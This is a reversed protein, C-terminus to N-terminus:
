DLLSNYLVNQGRLSTNTPRDLLRYPRTSDRIYAIYSEINAKIHPILFEMARANLREVEAVPDHAGPNGHMEYMSRLVISIEDPSQRGINHRYKNRIITRIMTQVREINRESFLISAVKNNCTTFVSKRGWDSYSGGPAVEDFSGPRM